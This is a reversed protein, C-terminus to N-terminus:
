LKPVTDAPLDYTRENTLVDTRVNRVFHVIIYHSSIAPGLPVMKKCLYASHSSVKTQWNEDLDDVYKM